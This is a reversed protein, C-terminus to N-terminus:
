LRLRLVKRGALAIVAVIVIQKAFAGLSHAPSPTRRDPDDVTRAEGRVSPAFPLGAVVAACGGAVIGAAFLLVATRRVLRGVTM